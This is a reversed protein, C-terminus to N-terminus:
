TISLRNLFDIIKTKRENRINASKLIINAQTVYSVYSCKLILNLNDYFNHTFIINFINQKNSNQYNITKRLKIMNAQLMKKSGNSHDSINIKLDECKNYPITSDWLILQEFDINTNAFMDTCDITGDAITIIQVM